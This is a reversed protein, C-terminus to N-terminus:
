YKSLDSPDKSKGWKREAAKLKTRHERLVDSLWSNSPAAVANLTFYIYIYIYISLSLSLSVYIHLINTDYKFM